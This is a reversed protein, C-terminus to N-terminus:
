YLNLILDVCGAKLTSVFKNETLLEEYSETGLTTDDIFESVKKESHKFSPM